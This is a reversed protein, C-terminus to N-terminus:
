RQGEAQMRARLETTWGFVVQYEPTRSNRTMLFRKGDPAVDYNAHPAQAFRFQDPFLETRNTV